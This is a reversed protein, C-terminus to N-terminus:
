SEILNLLGSEVPTTILCYHVYRFGFCLLVGLAQLSGLAGGSCFIVTAGQGLTPHCVCHTLSRIDTSKRQLFPAISVGFNATLKKREEKGRLGFNM